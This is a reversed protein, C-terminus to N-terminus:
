KEKGAPLWVTFLSGENKVSEATITGGYREVIKRCVALGIGTGEYSSRENLRQFVAFIRDLYKEDFGIGNDRVTIEIGGKKKKTTVEVVPPINPRHFKIANGVLNQMLQRIHTPDADVTHLAGFRVAAGSDVIRTELDSVVEKMTKVLDVPQISKTIRTVRSFALLDEILTSMRNAASHMRKLYDAGELGLSDGYESLLLNGFAQIKRLPEQLDHSAVYAFGELEKNSRSLEDSYENLEQEAVQRRLIEDRLGQNTLQLQKTREKVRSELTQKEIRLQKELQKRRKLDEVSDSFLTANTLSLSVRDSLECAMRLDDDTFHRGSGAAVFSIAGVVKKNIKLPVVMISSLELSKMFQLAKPDEIFEELMQNDIIPYFEPKGSKIVRPLATDDDIRVPNHRRYELALEIKKPDAHAVSVQEFGDEETYLDVTCWDSINPVCLKTLKTLTKKADLSSVLMKSIDALIVQRSAARKQDDIDTCTGYWKIISGDASRFPLARGIVWRYQKSPAHYLRYEIEYQDGTKLSHRWKRWARQQDEPHFLDNWGEGDTSGPATGTYDYWQQNYYDHYGDPRTTWVLQPMSDALFQLRRESDSLKEEAEKRETIDIITGAFMAPQGSTDLTVNGRAIVWHISGGKSVTRYEQTYPTNEKLTKEIAAEVKPRDDRHITEIFVNLPLGEAALSPDIGFLDALNRDAIVIDKAINWQWVGVMSTSLVQDLQRTANHGETVDKTEQYAGIVRGDQFVPYHTVTWFREVWNGEEDRLDYRLLPMSDPKGTTIARQMSEALESRGTKKYEESTDPFVELLPRGITDKRNVMGVKAHAENEALITLKPYDAAVVIHPSQLSEFIALHDITKITLVGYFQLLQISVIM